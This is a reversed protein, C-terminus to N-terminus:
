RKRRRRSSPQSSSTACACSSSRDRPAHRRAPEVRRRPRCWWGRASLELRHLAHGTLFAAVVKLPQARGLLDAAERLLQRADLEDIALDIASPLALAGLAGLSALAALASVDGGLRM